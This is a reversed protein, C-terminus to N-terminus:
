RRAEQLHHIFKAEYLSTWQSRTGERYAKMSVPVMEEFQVVVQNAEPHHGFVTGALSAALSRHLDEQASGDEDDDEDEEVDGAFQDIINGVRLEAEHSASSTLSVEKQIGNRDVVEFRARLQGSVGPAFFGYSNGAGSLAGYYGLYKGGLTSLDIYSAGLLVLLLHCIAIPIWIRYKRNTENM